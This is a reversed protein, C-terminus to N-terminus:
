NNKNYTIPNIILTTETATIPAQGIVYVEGNSEIYITNTGQTFTLQNNPKLEAPLIAILENILNYPSTYDNTTIGFNKLTFELNVNGNIDYTAIYGTQVEWDNTNQIIANSITIEVKTIIIEMPQSCWIYESKTISIGSPKTCNSVGECLRKPNECNDIKAFLKYENTTQQYYIYSPIIGYTDIKIVAVLECTLNTPVPYDVVSEVDELSQFYAILEAFTFGILEKQEDYYAQDKTGSHINFFICQTTCDTFCSYDNTIKPLELQTKLIWSNSCSITDKEFLKGGTWIYKKGDLYINKGNFVNELELMKWNPFVELGILEYIRKYETRQTKGNTTINRKIETPITKIKLPIWTTNSYRLPTNNNIPFLVKPDGYYNGGINDLCDFSSELRSIPILCNNENIFYANSYEHPVEVDEIILTKDCDYIISYTRNGDNYITEVDYLTAIEFTNNYDLGNFVFKGNQEVKLYDKESLNLVCRKVANRKTYTETIKNFILVGQNFIKLNLTFNDVPLTEDFKMEVNLYRFDYISNAFCFKFKSTVDAILTNGKADKLLVEFTYDASNQKPLIAQLKIDQSDVYIECYHQENTALNNVQLQNNNRRFIM